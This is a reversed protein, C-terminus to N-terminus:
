SRKPRSRQPFSPKAAVITLIHKAIAFVSHALSILLAELCSLVIALLRLAETGLARVVVLLCAEAVESFNITGTEGSTVLFPEPYASIFTGLAAVLGGFGTFSCIGRRFRRPM